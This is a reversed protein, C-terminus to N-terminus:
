LSYIVFGDPNIVGNEECQSLLVKNVNVIKNVDVAHEGCNVIVGVKQTRDESTKIFHVIRNNESENFDRLFDIETGVLAPNEKRVSILKKTFELDQDFMGEDLEKWPMCRRNDPDHGGEMMIETGYYICVSGPMSFMLSLTQRARNKNKGCRNLIRITDHSDMQNFLVRNTQRYYMGYCRNIAYEFQLASQTRACCFDAIANQLPYNMVSDFQDGRLWPLSNHWIEGLLYFDKKISTLRFKLQQCFVHSIENAVDLRIGDIDYEKVWKECVGCLYERLEPNNTNLKPMKDVFAFSYYKKNGANGKQGNAMEIFDFDNIMFWDKYRSKERNQWVDQWPGFFVGSHNFVGDLMVRIGKSHAQEVLEKMTKDDGFAPDIQCYDDTDYKHQSHSKNVPTMYLGTIGLDKLYDLKDVIGQLNGGYVPEGAGHIHIIEEGFPQWPKINEPVCQCEGKNFRAPFIQYWVTNQAWEPANVTDAPNMWPFTFCGHMDGSSLNQEPFFGTEMFFFSETGSFLKFYYRARKFEPKITITWKLHSQMECKKTIELEKGDWHWNGGLIGGCFPDGYILIVKDVDKGTFLNVELTDDDLPYCYNDFAKHQVAAFNM